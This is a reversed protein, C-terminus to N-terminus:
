FGVKLGTDYADCLCQNEVALTGHHGELQLLDGSGLSPSTPLFPFVLHLSYHYLFLFEDESRKFFKIIKRGNWNVYHLSGLQM